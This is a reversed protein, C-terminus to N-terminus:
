VQVRVMAVKVLTAGPVHVQMIVVNVPAAGASAGTGAGHGGQGTYCGRDCRYRCWSWRSSHLGQARVQVQVMVMKILTAGPVHVQMIVMNVPAAGASAGTSAGHGGQRTYCGRDCRYGCWSWRSRHLVRSRVQVQVMVVKVLTAEASAGTGAGHGDQCSWRSSHLVRSRVQVQVIVVKIRTAGAIAGTGACHGGQHTYCGRECRHRCSSWRSSHLVRVRVQVQM